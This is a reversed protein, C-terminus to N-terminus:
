HMWGSPPVYSLALRSFKPVNSVPCCTSKWKPVGLDRTPHSYCRNSAGFSVTLVKTNPKAPVGLLCPAYFSRGLAQARFSGM